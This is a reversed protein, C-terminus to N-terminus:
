LQGVLRELIERDREADLLALVEEKRAVNRGAGIKSATAAGIANALRGSQEPSLGNLMGFIIGAAFSDGAGIPDKADVVFGPVQHLESPTRILCGQAGQKIVVLDPGRKLIADAAGEPDLIGTLEGAEEDTLLIAQSAAVTREIIDAPVPEFVPGPDFIIQTDTKGAWALADLVMKVSLDTFAYGEVYLTRSNGIMKRWAEPIGPDAYGTGGGIFVHEGNPAVLALAVTTHWEPRCDVGRVDVGEDRLVDMLFRGYVDDRLRALAGSRLGIRAAAILLNCAGGAELTQVGSVQHEGPRIPFHDVAVIFDVVLDGLTLVDLGREAQNMPKVGTEIQTAM